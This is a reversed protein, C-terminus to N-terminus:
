DGARDGHNTYRLFVGGSLERYTDVRLLGSRDRFEARAEIGLRPGLERIFGAAVSTERSQRPFLSYDERSQGIQFQGSSTPTFRRTVEARLEQTRHSGIGAVLSSENRNFYILSAGTRERQFRVGLEGVNSIRPTSTLLASDDLGSQIIEERPMPTALSTPYERQFGVFVNTSPSLRRTLRIRAMPNSDDILAGKVDAMGVQAEIDTRVGRADFRGYIEQRRFDLGTTAGTGGVYSFDDYSYGLGIQTRPTSQRILQFRGGVTENDFPRTSFMQRAYNASVEARTLDSLRARLTPGTAWSIMSETNGPAIPRFTDERMQDYSLSGNWTFFDEVIDYSGNAFARGFNTGPARSTLYEYHAISGAVNYRLRGEDKLAALNLGAMISAADFENVATRNVNDSWATGLRATYDLVQEAQATSAALTAGVALAVLGRVGFKQVREKM